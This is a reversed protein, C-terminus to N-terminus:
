TLQNKTTWLNSIADPQEMLQRTGLLVARLQEPNDFFRAWFRFAQVMATTWSANIAGPSGVATLDVEVTDGGVSLGRNVLDDYEDDTPLDTHNAPRVAEGEVKRLYEILAIRENESISEPAGDMKLIGRVDDAFKRKAANITTQDRTGLIDAWPAHDLFWDLIAYTGTAKIAGVILHILKQRLTKGALRKTFWYTTRKLAEKGFLRTAAQKGIARSATATLAGGAELLPLLLPGPM